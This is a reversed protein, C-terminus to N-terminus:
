DGKFVNAAWQYNVEGAVILRLEIRGAVGSLAVNAVYAGKYLINGVEPKVALTGSPNFKEVIVTRPVLGTNSLTVVQDTAMISIVRPYDDSVNATSGGLVLTNQHLKRVLGDGTLVTRPIGASNQIQLAVRTSGINSLMIGAEHEGQCFLGYKPNFKVGHTEYAASYFAALRSGLALHGIDFGVKQGNGPRSRVAFYAWYKSDPLTVLDVGGVETSYGKKNQIGLEAVMANSAKGNEPLIVNANITWIKSQPNIRLGQTNDPIGPTTGNPVCWGDKLVVTTGDVYDVFGFWPTTHNTMITMGPSFNSAVVSSHTFGSASYTPTDIVEWNEHVSSTADFFAAVGDVSAYNALAQTSSVGVVQPWFCYNGAGLRVSLVTHNRGVGFGKKGLFLGGPLLIDQDSLAESIVKQDIEHNRGYVPKKEGYDALRKTISLAEFANTARYGLKKPGEPMAMENRFSDSVSRISSAIQNFKTKDPTEEALELIALLEAQIINFWDAGPWSIGGQEQSEGFWRTSITQTEKPEPMEPVGSTNDLHFM